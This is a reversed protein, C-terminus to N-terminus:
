RPRYRRPGARGKSDVSVTLPHNNRLAKARVAPDQSRGATSPKHRGMHDVPQDGSARRDHHHVVEDGTRLRIDGMQRSCGRNVGQDFGVDAGFTARRGRLTLAEVRNM